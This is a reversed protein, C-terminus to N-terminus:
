ALRPSSRGHSGPRRGSGSARRCRPVRGASRASCGQRCGRAPRAVSRRGRRDGRIWLGSPGMCPGFALVPRFLVAADTWSSPSTAGLLAGALVSTLLKPGPTYPLSARHGFGCRPGQRSSQRTLWRWCNPRYPTWTSRTVSGSASRMWPGPRMMSAGTSAGIWSQKSAADPRSSCRRSRWPPAPWRGARRIGESGALCRSSCSSLAVMALGLTVTLSGYVLTRNILRDIDYLRYRLIAIGVAVPLAVVMV